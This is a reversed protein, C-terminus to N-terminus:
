FFGLLRKKFVYVLTKFFENQIASARTRYPPPEHETHRLSTYQIATLSARNQIASHTLYTTLVYLVHVSYM